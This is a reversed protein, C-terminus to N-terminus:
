DWDWDNTIKSIETINFCKPCRYYYTHINKLNDSILNEKVIDINFMKTKCKICQFQTM